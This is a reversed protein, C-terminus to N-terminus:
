RLSALRLPGPVCMGPWSTSTAPAGAHARSRSGRTDGGTPRAFVDKDSEYKPADNRTRWLCSVFIQPDGNLVCM